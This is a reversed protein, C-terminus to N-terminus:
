SQGNGRPVAAVDVQRPQNRLLPHQKRKEIMGDLEALTEGRAKIATDLATLQQQTVRVVEENTVKRHHRFSSLIVELHDLAVDRTRAFVEVSVQEEESVRRTGVIRFPRFFELLRM